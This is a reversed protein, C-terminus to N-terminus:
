LDYGFKRLKGRIDRWNKDVKVFLNLYVKKGLFNELEKRAEIGIHKLARGNKGILIPKQSDRAVYIIAYIKVIDPYEKFEDVVVEVSYPIEQKYYEFIKERILEAVFFRIPRDTLMDKDFFPPNEPLREIIEAKLRDLNFNYKASAAIIPSNPFINKWLEILSHVHAQDVTDIKNIVLIIPVNLSKIKELYPKNQSKSDVPDTVFIIVDADQLAEEVFKLMAEHLKYKPKELIGPTDSLIIQYDEGNIIGKIRHRTTQPKETMISLKEGLLKNMLTSKGVNPSGIINVFGAKHM